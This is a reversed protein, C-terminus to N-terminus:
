TTDLWEEQGSVEKEQLFIDKIIQTVSVVIPWKPHVIQEKVDNIVSSFFTFYEFFFKFDRPYCLWYVHM